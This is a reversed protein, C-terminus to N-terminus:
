REATFLCEDSNRRRWEKRREKRSIRSKALIYAKSKEEVSIHEL